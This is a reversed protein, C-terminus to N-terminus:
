SIYTVYTVRIYMYVKHKLFRDAYIIKSDVSILYININYIYCQYGGYIYIYIYLIIYM